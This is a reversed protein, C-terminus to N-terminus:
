SRIWALSSPVYMSSQSIFKLNQMKSSLFSDMKDEELINQLFILFDRSHLTAVSSIQRLLLVELFPLLRIKKFEDAQGMKAQGVSTYM